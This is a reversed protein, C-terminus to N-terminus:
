AVLPYPDIVGLKPNRINKASGIAERSAQNVPNLLVPLNTIRERSEARGNQKRSGHARISASGVAEPDRNVVGTTERVREAYTEDASGANPLSENIPSLKV